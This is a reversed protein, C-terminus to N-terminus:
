LGYFLKRKKKAFYLDVYHPPISKRFIFGVPNTLTDIIVGEIIDLSYIKEGQERAVKLTDPFAGTEYDASANQGLVTIVSIFSSLILTSFLTKITTM